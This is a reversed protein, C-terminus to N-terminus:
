RGIGLNVQALIGPKGGIRFLDSCAPICEETAHSPVGTSHNPGMAIDALKLVTTIEVEFRKPLSNLRVQLVWQDPSYAQLLMPCFPAAM